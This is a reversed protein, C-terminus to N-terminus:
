FRAREQGSPGHAGHVGEQIALTIDSLVPLIQGGRRYVQLAKSNLLPENEEM